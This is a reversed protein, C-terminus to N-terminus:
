DIADSDVETAESDFETEGGYPDDGEDADEEREDATCMDAAAKILEQFPDLGQRRVDHRWLYECMHDALKGSTVGGRCLRQRLPRWNSEIQQTDAWTNPDRFNLSHYLTLHQFGEM